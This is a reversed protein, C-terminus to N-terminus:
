GRYAYHGSQIMASNATCLDMDAKGGFASMPRSHIRTGKPWTNITTEYIGLMTLQGNRVQRGM